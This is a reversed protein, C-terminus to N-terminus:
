PQSGGYGVIRLAVWDRDIRVGSDREDNEREALALITPVGEPFWDVDPPSTQEIATWAGAPGIGDGEFTQTLRYGDLRSRPRPGMPSTLDRAWATFAPSGRGMDNSTVSAGSALKAHYRFSGDPLHVVLGLLEMGTRNTVVIDEGGPSREISLGAGLSMTGEERFVVTQSPMAEVGELRLAGTEAVLERGGEADTAVDLMSGSGQTRLTIKQAFASFFGRYIRASGTPMGAGAEVFSLRNSQSSVGKSVFGFLVVLLFAGLSFLPLVKLADLPKNKRKARQFSIPGAVIAYGCLLLSALGIGWRASRNPDLLAVIPGFLDHRNMPGAYTSPQRLGAGPRVASAQLRVHARRALEALRVTTWASTAADAENPDFGLLVVEGLGYTASAGFISPELNGGTYSTFAVVDPPRDPIVGLKAIDKSSLSPEFPAHNRDDTPQATPTAGVFDALVPLRLDEVKTVTVALTGGSLVHGALARLEDEPLAALTPASIFVAGMGHWATTTTPLLPAGTTPDSRAVGVSLNTGGGPPAGPSPAGISVLRSSGLAAHIRSPSTVDFLRVALDTEANIPRTMVVQSGIRIEAFLAYREANVPLKVLARSKPGAVFEARGIVETDNDGRGRVVLAGVLQVDVPNEVLAVVEIMGPLFTSESPGVLVSLEFSPEAARARSSVFVAVFVLLVALVARRWSGTKM